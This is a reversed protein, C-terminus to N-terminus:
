LSLDAETGAILGHILRHSHAQASVIFARIRSLLRLGIVVGLDIPGCIIAQFVASVKRSISM